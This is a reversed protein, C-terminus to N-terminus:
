SPSAQCQAFGIGWLSSSSRMANEIRRYRRIAISQQMAASFRRTGVCGSQGELALQFLEAEIEMLLFRDTYPDEADSFQSEYIHPKGGFDAVGRRPGDYYDNVTFVREWTMRAGLDNSGPESRTSCRADDPEMRSDKSLWRGILGPIATVHWSGDNAPAHGGHM